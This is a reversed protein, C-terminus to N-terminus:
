RKSSRRGKVRGKGSRVSATTAKGGLGSFSGILKFIPGMQQFLKFMKQAKTMMSIIGDLGGLGGLLSAGREATAEAAPAPAAEREGPAGFAPEDLQRSDGVSYSTIIDKSSFPERRRAPYRKQRVPGKKTAKVEAKRAASVTIKKM